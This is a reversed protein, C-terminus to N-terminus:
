PGEKRDHIVRPITAERSIEPQHRRLPLIKCLNTCTLNPSYKTSKVLVSAAWNRKRPGEYVTM